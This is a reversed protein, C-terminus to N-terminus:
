QLRTRWEGLLSVFSVRVQSHLAVFIHLARCLLSHCSLVFVKCIVRSKKEQRVAHVQMHASFVPAQREERQESDLSGEFGPGCAERLMDLSSAIAGKQLVAMIMQYGLDM